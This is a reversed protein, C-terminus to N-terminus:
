DRLIGHEPYPHDAFDDLAANRAQTLFQRAPFLYEPHSWRRGTVTRADANGAAPSEPALHPPLGTLALCGVAARSQAEANENFAWNEFCQIECELGLKRETVSPLDLAKVYDYLKRPGMGYLLGFRLPHRRPLSMALDVVTAGTTLGDLVRLEIKSFDMTM